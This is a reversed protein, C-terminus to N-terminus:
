LRPLSASRSPAMGALKHTRKKAKPLNRSEEWCVAACALAFGIIVFGVIFAM